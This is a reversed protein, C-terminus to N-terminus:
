FTISKYYYYNYLPLGIKNILLHKQNINKNKLIIFLFLFKNKEIM